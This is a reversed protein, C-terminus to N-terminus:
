VLIEVIVLVTISGQQHFNRLSVAENNGWSNKIENQGLELKELLLLVKGSRTYANGISGDQQNSGDLIIVSSDLTMVEKKGALICFFGGKINHMM